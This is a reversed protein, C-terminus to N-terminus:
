PARSSSIGSGARADRLAAELSRHAEHIEGGERLSWARRIAHRISLARAEPEHAERARALALGALDALGSKEFRIALELYGHAPAAADPAGLWSSALSIVEHRLAVEPLARALM